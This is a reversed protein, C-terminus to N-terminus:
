RSQVVGTSVLKDFDPSVVFKGRVQGLSWISGMQKGSAPDISGKSVIAAADVVAQETEHLAPEKPSHNIVVVDQLFECHAGRTVLMEIPQSQTPGTPALVASTSAPGTTSLTPHPETAASPEPNGWLISVRGSKHVRLQGVLGQPVPVREYYAISSRTIPVARKKPPPAPVGGSESKMLPQDLNIAAESESAKQTTVDVIPELPPLIAPFQFFFLDGNKVSSIDSAADVDAGEIEPPTNMGLEHLIALRDEEEMKVEMDEEFSLIHSPRRRQEMSRRPKRKVEPSSVGQVSDKKSLEPSPPRNPVNPEDLDIIPPTDVIILSGDDVPEVKM